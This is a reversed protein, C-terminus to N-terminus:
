TTALQIIADHLKTDHLLLCLKLEFDEYGSALNRMWFVMIYVKVGTLLESRGM